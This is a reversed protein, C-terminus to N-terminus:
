YHFLSNRHQLLAHVSQFERDCVECFIRHVANWHQWRAHSDLYVRGCDSCTRAQLAQEERAIRQREEESNQRMRESLLIKEAKRAMFEAIRESIREDMSKAEKAIQLDADRIKSLMNRKEKQLIGMESDLDLLRHRTEAEQDALFGHGHPTLVVPDPVPSVHNGDYKQKYGKGTHVRPDQLIQVLEDNTCNRRFLQTRGQTPHYLATGITRTTYYVNIRVDAITNRFSIVKSRENLSLEEIDNSLASVMGRVFDPTWPTMGLPAHFKATPDTDNKSLVTLMRDGGRRDFLWGDTGLVKYFKVGSSAQVMHTCEVVERHQYKISCRLRKLDIPQRRPSLGALNEVQVIWTGTQITIRKMLQMDNKRKFIWGSGDTLRLFPGNSRPEFPCTRSIDIAVLEGVGVNQDSCRNKSIEPTLRILISDICEYVQLGEEVMNESLLMNTFGGKKLPRKDFIWGETGQVRYFNVGTVPHKVRRDCAVKQMSKYTVANVLSRTGDMPHNRLGIGVPSNDSYFIYLGREVPVREMMTEGFKKEFLWGSADSLRLFPGNKSGAVRSPRVLDVSVLDNPEFLKTTMSEDAVNLGTRVALPMSGLVRYVFCGEEDKVGQPLHEM